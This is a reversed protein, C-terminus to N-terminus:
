PGLGKFRAELAPLTLPAPSAARVIPGRGYCDICGASISSGDHQFTIPYEFM